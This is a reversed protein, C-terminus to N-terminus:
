TIIEGSTKGFVIDVLKSMFSEETILSAAGIM